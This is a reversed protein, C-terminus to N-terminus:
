RRRPSSVRRPRWRRPHQAREDGPLRFRLRACSRLPAESLARPERHAVGFQFFWTYGDATAAAVIAGAVTGGAGSRNDVIVRYGWNESMEQAIMRGVVDIESGPPTASSWESTGCRSPSSRSQPIRRALSRWAALSVLCAQKKM